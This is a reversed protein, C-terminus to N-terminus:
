CRRTGSDFTTPIAGCCSRSGSTTSTGIDGSARRGIRRTTSPFRGASFPTTTGAPRPSRSSHNVPFPFGGDLSRCFGEVVEERPRTLCVIRISPELAVAEEVYPLYFSAVDGVVPERRADLMRRLRERIGGTREDPTWPLLPPEQHTM